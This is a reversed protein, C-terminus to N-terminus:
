QAGVLAGLTDLMQRQMDAATLSEPKVEDVRGYFDQLKRGLREAEIVQGPEIGRVRAEELMGIAREYEGAHVLAEVLGLRLQSAFYPDIATHEAVALWRPYALILERYRGCHSLAFVLLDLVNNAMHRQAQQGHVFAPDHELARFLASAVEASTIL